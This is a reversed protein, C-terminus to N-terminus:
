VACCSSYHAAREWLGAGIHRAHQLHPWQATTCSALAPTTGVQTICPAAARHDCGKQFSPHRMHLRKQLIPAPIMIMGIRFACRRQRRQLRCVAELAAHQGDHHSASSFGTGVNSMPKLADPCWRVPALASIMRGAHCSSPKGLLHAAGGAAALGRQEGPPGGSPPPDEQLQRHLFLCSPMIPVLQRGSLNFKGLNVILRANQHGGCAPPM